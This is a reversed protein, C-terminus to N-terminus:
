RLDARKLSSFFLCISATPRISFIFTFTTDVKPFSSRTMFLSKDVGYSQALRLHYNSGEWM